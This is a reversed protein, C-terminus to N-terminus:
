KDGFEREFYNEIIGAFQIIDELYFSFFIPFFHYSLCKLIIFFSSQLKRVSVLCKYVYIIIHICWWLVAFKFTQTYIYFGKGFKM